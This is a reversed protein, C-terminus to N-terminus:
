VALRPWERRVFDTDQIPESECEVAITTVPRDPAEGPLGTFQTRFRDQEFKLPQGTALLRASKVGTRLGSLAVTEGPWFYVHMYLTNGKRTFCAYDSRSPQCRDQTHVSEGNRATWRGVEMLIRVIVFRQEPIRAVLDIAAPLQRAYILIDYTFGFQRLQEVGKVFDDRALFRDDKEAQAVHRFGRLKEFRSFHELREAARPWLLNVWGVVGAISSSEKALDLLFNTESESQDAQVAVSADIGNAACEAALQAPLFDRKLVAMEETIWADRTADYRWFHQHSDIKMFVKAEVRGPDAIV